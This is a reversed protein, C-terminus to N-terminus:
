GGASGTGFGTGGFGTGGTGPFAGASGGTGPFAGAFGGTGGYGGEYQCTSSCGDDSVTNEDDCTEDPWDAFGDGCVIARCPEGPEWCAYGPETECTASCGDSSSENGDDCQEYSGSPSGAFGGSGGTGSGSNPIFDQFGDGCRPLRCPEGPSWCIYGPEPECSANCGDGSTTNGDDCAEYLWVRGDSTAGAAGGTAIGASGGTAIGSGGSGFSTGATGSGMGGAGAVPEEGPVYYSDRLGDGCVVEHCAGAPPDGIDVSFTRCAYGSELTCTSSCGDGSTANSDDCEEFEWGGLGDGYSDIRGDGCATLVCTGTWDCTYRADVECESCGDDSVANGDDCQEPYSRFGDGCVGPPNIGGAFGATGITGATGFGGTSLSGGTGPAGANSAGGQGSGM